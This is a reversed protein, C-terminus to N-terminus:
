LAWGTEKLRANIKESKQRMILQRILLPFISKFAWERRKGMKIKRKIKKKEEAQEMGDQTGIL